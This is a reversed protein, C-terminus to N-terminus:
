AHPAGHAVGWHAHFTTSLNRGDSDNGLFNATARLWNSLDYREIDSLVDANHITLIARWKHLPHTAVQPVVRPVPKPKKM